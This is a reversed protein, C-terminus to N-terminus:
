SVSQLSNEIFTVFDSNQFAKIRQWVAKPIPLSFFEQIDKQMGQLKVFMGINNARRVNDLHLILMKVFLWEQTTVPHKTLDLRKELVRALEPHDYLTQWIGCYEQQIAILNAIRRAKEDKHFTYAALLLSGVVTVTQILNFWNEAFWQSVGM